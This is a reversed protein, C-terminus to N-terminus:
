LQGKVLKKGELHYAIPTGLPIELAVVQEPTLQDLEMLISRLSNGHAVILIREGKELRPLIESDFYPLTRAATMKLSEGNPPAVDFSRRWIQVQEEGFKAKTEAKNLGQLEGYYRENLQWARVIPLVNEKTQPSYIKAWDAKPDNKEPVFTPIKESEAENLALLATQQARALESTFVIDFTLGKITQGALQAEKMGQKSLPVDVWGTFLNAKNWVSEGHRMLILNPTKKL